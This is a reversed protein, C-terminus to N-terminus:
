CYLFSSYKRLVVAITIIIIGYIGIAGSESYFAERLIFSNVIVLFIIVIFLVFAMTLFLKKRVSRIM